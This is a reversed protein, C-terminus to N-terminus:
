QWWWWFNILGSDFNWKDLSKWKLNCSGMGGCINSLKQPDIYNVLSGLDIEFNWSLIPVLSFSLRLSIRLLVWCTVCALWMIVHMTRVCTNHPCRRELVDWSGQVVKIIQFVPTNNPDIYNLLLKISYTFHSIGRFSTSSTLVTM